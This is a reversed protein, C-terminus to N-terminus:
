PELEREMSRVLKADDKRITALMATAAKLNAPDVQEAQQCTILFGVVSRITRADDAVKSSDYVAPMLNVADWDNWRSLNQVVVERIEPKVLLPHLSKRLRDKSFLDPEYNWAFQLSQIVPFCDYASVEPHSLRSEELFTLGKEGALLLYGGMMGEVGFRVEGEKPQGIQQKLFDADADTGCMGLMLAFLGVREPRNDPHAIWERLKKRSFTGSQKKIDGYEANAFESWADTAVLPDKHELFRLFYKLRTQPPVDMAPAQVIYDFAAESSKEYCDWQLKQPKSGDAAVPSETTTASVKQITGEATFPIDAAFTENVTAQADQLSAKLLVLDGKEAFIFEGIRFLFKDPLLKQGKHVRVVKVISFPHSGASGEDAAVLEALLVVDAEEMM